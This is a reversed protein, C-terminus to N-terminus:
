WTEQGYEQSEAKAKLDPMASVNAIHRVIDSKRWLLKHRSLLDIPKPLKGERRLKDVSNQSVGLMGALQKKTILMVGSIEEPNFTAM